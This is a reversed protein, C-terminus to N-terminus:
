RSQIRKRLLIEALELDLPTTVKINDRDGEIIRVNQIQEVLTADDTASNINRSKALSHAEKLLTGKFVQPTQIAWLKERDPTAEVIHTPGVIKITDVVPVAVTIANYHRAAEISREVLEHTVMCRAADHVLILDDEKLSHQVFDIGRGVSEQRSAGGAIVDLNSYLDKLFVFDNLSQEPVLVVLKTILGSSTIAELTWEIVRKGCINLLPKSVGSNM